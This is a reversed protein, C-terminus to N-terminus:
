APTGIFTAEQRRFQFSSTNRLSFYREKGTKNLLFRFSVFGFSVFCCLNDHLVFCFSGPTGKRAVPWVRRSRRSPRAPCPCIPASCTWGAASKPRLAACQGSTQDVHRCGQNRGECKLAFAVSLHPKLAPNQTKVSTAM